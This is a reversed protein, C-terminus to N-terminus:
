PDNGTDVLFHMYRFFFKEFNPCFIDSVNVAVSIFISNVSFALFKMATTKLNEYLEKWVFSGPVEFSYHELATRINRKPETRSCYRIIRIQIM